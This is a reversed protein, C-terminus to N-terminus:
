FARVARVRKTETKTDFNQGGDDFDYVLADGGTDVTSSWYGIDIGFNGLGMQYLNFYVLNLEDQSPLYWDVCAGLVYDNTSTVAGNWDSAVQDVPAAEKGNLGGNSIEFVIGGCPGEEGVVFVMGSTQAHLPLVVSTIVPTFWVIPGGYVARKLIKRRIKNKM